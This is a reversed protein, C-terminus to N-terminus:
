FEQILCRGHTLNKQRSKWFVTFDLRRSAAAPVQTASIRSWSTAAQNDSNLSSQKKSIWVSFLNRDTRRVSKRCKDGLFKRPSSRRGSLKQGRLNEANIEWFSEPLHDGGLFKRPDQSGLIWWKNWRQISGLDRQRAVMLPRGLQRRKSKVTKQFDLCFIFKQRDKQCIKQM